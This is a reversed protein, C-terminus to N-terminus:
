TIIHIEDGGRGAAEKTQGTAGRNKGARTANDCERTQPDMRVAHSIQGGVLLPRPGTHIYPEDGTYAAGAAIREMARRGEDLEDAHRRQYEIWTPSDEGTMRPRANVDQEMRPQERTTMRTTFASTVVPMRVDRSTSQILPGDRPDLSFLLPIRPVEQTKARRADTYSMREDIASRAPAQIRGASTWGRASMLEFPSATCTTSTWGRREASGDEVDHLDGDMTNLDNRTHQLHTRSGMGITQDGTPNIGALTRSTEATVETGTSADIMRADSKLIARSRLSYRVGDDDGDDIASAIEEEESDSTTRMEDDAM